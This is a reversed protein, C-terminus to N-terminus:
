NKTKPPNHVYGVERDQMVYDLYTHSALMMLQPLAKINSSNTDYDLGKNTLMLDLNRELINIDPTLPNGDNNISIELKTLYPIIQNEPKYLLMIFEHELLLVNGIEQELLTTEFDEDEQIYKINDHFIIIGEICDRDNFNAVHLKTSGAIIPVKENEKNLPKYDGKLPNRLTRWGKTEWEYSPYDPPVAKLRHYTGELVEEYSQCSHPPICMHDPIDFSEDLELHSGLIELLKDVM